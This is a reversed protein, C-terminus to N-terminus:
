SQSQSVSSLPVSSFAAVSYDEAFDALPSAFHENWEPWYEKELHENAAEITSVKALRLHSGARHSFELMWGNKELDEWLVGMNQPPPM